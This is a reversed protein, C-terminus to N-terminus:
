KSAIKDGETGKETSSNDRKTNEENGRYWMSGFDIQSWWSYHEGVDM